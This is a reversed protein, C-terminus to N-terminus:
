KKGTEDHARTFLPAPRVNDAIDAGMLIPAAAALLTIKTAM